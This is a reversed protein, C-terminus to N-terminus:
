ESDKKGYIREIDIKGDRILKLMIDAIKPDFQSGKCREIEEVVFGFDLKQRYVRNATMADFADAVGIIRGYIPIEEGKLGHAYGKGDYREHHYFAGDMVNDVLTFDKLIEAGRTVHSKM